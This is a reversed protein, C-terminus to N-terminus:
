RLNNLQQSISFLWTELDEAAKSNNNIAWDGTQKLLVQKYIKTQNNFTYGLYYSVGADNMENKPKTTTARSANSLLPLKSKLEALNVTLCVGNTQSLNADMAQESIQNLSDINNWHQPLNYCFVNGVSDILFGTHVKGWAFNIYGAEFLIKQNFNPNVIKTADCTTLFISILLTVSFLKITKM